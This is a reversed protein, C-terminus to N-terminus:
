LTRTLGGALRDPKIFVGLVLSVLSILLSGLLASGVNEVDFALEFVNNALWNTAGILVANVVIVFLGFTVITVPLSLMFLVPRVYLNLLGLIAAVILTDQWGELYIGPVAEATVFVATALMLWRILLSLLGVPLISLM